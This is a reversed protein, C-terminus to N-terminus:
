IREVSITVSTGVTWDLYVNGDSQNFLDTPFPGVKREQANTVTVTLDPVAAGDVSYNRKITLTTSSGGGNKVHLIVRGDNAFQNGNPQDVATYTPTLPTRSIQQVTLTTRAM